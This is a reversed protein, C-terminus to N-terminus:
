IDIDVDNKSKAPPKKANHEAAQKAAKAYQDKMGTKKEPDAAREQAKREVAEHYKGIVETNFDELIDKDIYVTNRYGGKKDPRSPMGVFFEGDKNLVIKLDKTTIGGQTVSAFGHLNGQPTDLPFVRIDKELRAREAQKVANVRMNVAEDVSIGLHSAVNAIPATMLFEAQDTFELAADTNTKTAM